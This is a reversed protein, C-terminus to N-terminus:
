PGLNFSSCESIGALRKIEEITVSNINRSFEYYDEAKGAFEEIILNVATENSGESEVLHSGIVQTKAEKLEDSRIERMKGYEKSCIDYVSNVKGSDTGAFITMYRYNRGLDLSTNITYVLGRKERVESFLKSSMGGGLITSFVLATYNDKEGLVPFHFGMTLNSQMVGERKENTRAIKKKVDLTDKLLIGDRKINAYKQALRVVDDFDNNGVVCLVSNKPIYVERHKSLLQRPKMGRVLKITGLGSMGYPKEYLNEKIREYTHARPSDCYMKIEESIVKAEKVVEEDPFSANFFIDSIVDVGLELHESPLRVHYVTMEEHTFANLDGGVRELTASIEQTTRKGTGKFCLHEIFHAIGKESADEYMSGYRVAMMVTTVSVDRKEHIVTLGNSLKKRNFKVM